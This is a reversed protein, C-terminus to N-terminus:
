TQGPGSPHRHHLASWSRRRGGFTANPLRRRTARPRPTKSRWWVTKRRWTMACCRRAPWCWAPCPLVEAPHTADYTQDLEIGRAHQATHAYAGLTDMAITAMTETGAQGIAVAEYDWLKEHENPM